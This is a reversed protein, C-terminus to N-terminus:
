FIGKVSLLGWLSGSGLRVETRSADLGVVRRTERGAAAGAVGVLDTTM